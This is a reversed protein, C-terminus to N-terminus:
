DGNALREEVWKKLEEHEIDNNAIRMSIYVLGGLSTNLRYGNKKLFLKMAETGTRKNGDVFPHNRIIEEWLVAAVTAVKQRKPAKKRLETEARAVVFELPGPNLLSGGLRENILAIEEPGPLDLEDSGEM